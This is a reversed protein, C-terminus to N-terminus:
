TRAAIRRVCALTLLASVLLLENSPEPVSALRFGLHLEQFQPAESPRASAALGAPSDEFFSGGRLGRGSDIVSENWEWVNGGQDFTGYPSTSETYSGVERAGSEDCNATNAGPGPPTCTTTADTGSPYDYYVRKSADYYAAKYWEDESPLFIAADVSRPGVSVAGSFMYAGDETTTGDQV